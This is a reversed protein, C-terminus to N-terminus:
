GGGSGCFFFFFFAQAGYGRWLIRESWTERGSMLMFEKEKSLGGICMYGWETVADLLYDM